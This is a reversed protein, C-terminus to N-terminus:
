TLNQAKKAIMLNQQTIELTAQIGRLQIYGNATETITALLVARQDNEAIEIDAKAAGVQRRIKGWLDLEWAASFGTSWLNFNKEPM